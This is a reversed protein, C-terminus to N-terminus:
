ARRLRVVENALMWIKATGDQVWDRPDRVLLDVPRCDEECQGWDVHWATGNDMVAVDDAPVLGHKVCEWGRYTTGLRIADPLPEHEIPPM